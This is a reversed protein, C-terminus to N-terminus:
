VQATLAKVSVNNGEAKTNQFPRETFGSSTTKALLPLGTIQWGREWGSHGCRWVWMERRVNNKCVQVRSKISECCTMGRPRELPLPYLGLKNASWSRELNM